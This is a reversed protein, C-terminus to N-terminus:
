RQQRMNETMEDLHCTENVRLVRVRGDLIDIETIGCPAQAIRWYASLPQDLFQLLLARNVHDHGVVVVTEAGHRGLVFRLADATRKVLGDLTEGGPFRVHQPTAHWAEFLDPWSARVEDHRRWQWEGFDLDILDAVPEIAIRCTEAIAEATAVCRSLPSTYVVAAKWRAAVRAALAKAQARGLTTLPVDARGRFREPAIGEVHGHRTLVIKTM